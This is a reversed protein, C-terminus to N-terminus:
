GWMRPILDPGTGAKMLRIYQKMSHDIGLSLGIPRLSRVDGMHHFGPALTCVTDDERCILLCRPNHAATGMGRRPRPAAFGIAPVSWSMSLIQAAAAGLSHGMIVKPRPKGEMWDYIAKAYALFGQHWITQSAGPATATEDMRYRQEGVRFLRLNYRAYDAVSNSGPLLLIGDETLHAQVDDKDFSHVIKPSSIRQPAYSAEVLDAADSLSVPM